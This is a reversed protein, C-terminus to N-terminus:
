SPSTNTVAGPTTVTAGAAAVYQLKLKAVYFLVSLKWTGPRAMRCFKDGSVWGNKIKPKKKMLM